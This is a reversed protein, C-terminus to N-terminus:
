IELHIDRYVSLEKPGWHCSFCYAIDRQFKMEMKVLQYGKEVKAKGREHLELNYLGELPQKYHPPVPFLSLLPYHPM